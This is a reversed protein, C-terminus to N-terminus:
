QIRRGIRACVAELSAPDFRWPEPLGLIEACAESCFLRNTWGKLRRWVFGFLGLVDYRKGDNAAFWDKVAAKPQAIEYIRWKEPPMFIVKGRVGGDMFSASVCAHRDGDWQWAAECHASDHHTWWGVVRAFLRPDSHRFCVRIV